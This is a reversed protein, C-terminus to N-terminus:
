CLGYLLYGHFRWLKFKVSKKDGDGLGLIYKKINGPCLLCNIGSWIVVLSLLFFKKCVTLSFPSLMTLMLQLTFFRHFLWWKFKVSKKEGDGFGLINPKPSLSVFYKWTKLPGALLKQRKLLKCRLKTFVFKKSLFDTVSFHSLYDKRKFTCLISFKKPESKSNQTIENNTISM